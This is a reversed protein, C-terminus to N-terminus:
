QYKSLLTLLNKFAPLWDKVEEWSKTILEIRIRGADHMEGRSLADVYDRVLKLTLETLEEKDLQSYLTGLRKIIDGLMRSDNVDMQKGRLPELISNLGTGIDQHQESQVLPLSPTSIKSEDRPTAAVPTRLPTPVRAGPRVRGPVRSVRQPEPRRVSISKGAGDDVPNGDGISDFSISDEPDRSDLPALPAARIDSGHIDNTPGPPVNEAMRESSRPHVVPRSPPGRRIRGPSSVRHVAPNGPASHEIAHGVSEESSRDEAPHPHSMSEQRSVEAHLEPNEAVKIHGRPLDHVSRLVRPPRVAQGPNNDSPLMDAGPQSFEAIQEGKTPMANSFNTDRSPQRSRLRVAEPGPMRPPINPPIRRHARSIGRADVPDSLNDAPRDLVEDQNPEFSGHRVSVPVNRPPDMKRVPLPQPRSVYPANAQNEVRPLPAVPGPTPRGIDMSNRRPQRIQPGPSSRDGSPQNVLGREVSAREPASNVSRPAQATRPVRVMSRAGPARQAIYQREAPVPSQHVIPRGHTPARPAPVQRRIVPTVDHPAPSPRAIPIREVPIPSPRVISAGHRPAPSPRGVPVREIIAPTPRGVAVPAPRIASPQRVAPSPRVIPAPSPRMVPAPSPRVVPTPSPRVLPAPSPQVAPAPSPRVVAGRVGAPTGYVPPPRGDGSGGSTHDPRVGSRGPVNRSPGSPLRTVRGVPGAGRAVAVAQSGKRQVDVSDFPFTPAYVDYPPVPLSNYIRDALIAALGSSSDCANQIFTLAESLQGQAALLAAYEGFISITMQSLPQNKRNLAQAVAYLKEVTYQLRLAPDEYRYMASENWLSIARDVNSSAVFCVSSAAYFGEEYLREGLLNCMSVLREGSSYMLILVLTEEWLDLSISNIYSGIDDAVVAKIVTRIFQKPHAALYRIQAKAWLESGGMHAFLLADADRHCEFCKRVAAEFDSTLLYKKLISDTEDEPEDQVQGDFAFTDEKGSGINEFFDKAEGDGGSRSEEKSYGMDSLLEQQPNDSFLLRICRWTQHEEEDSASFKVRSDCYEEMSRSYVEYQFNSALEVFQSDAISSQVIVSTNLHRGFSVRKGGFGFVCGVPTKLWSPTHRPGTSVVNKVRVVGSYYSSTLLGPVFCNWSNEFAIADEEWSDLMTGNMDWLVSYSDEGSTLLVEKDHPSFQASLVSKSHGQLIVKPSLSNRLDWVEPTSNKYTIVLQRPQLPDWAVSTGASYSHSSENFTIVSRKQRLDWVNTEGNSNCTALIQPVQSNWALAPISYRQLGGVPPTINSPTPKDVKQIDWVLVDGDSGASAFVNQETPHFDLGLISNRHKQVKVIPEVSNGNIIGLIDWLFVSGDSMGSALLGSAKGATGWSLKSFNAEKVSLINIVQPTPYQPEMNYLELNSSTQFSENIM